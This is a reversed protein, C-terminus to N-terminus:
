EPLSLFEGEDILKGNRIMRKIENNVIKCMGVTTRQFGFRKCVEQPIDDRQIGFSADVVQAIALGIEQPAVYEMKRSSAPLSERSRIKPIKM